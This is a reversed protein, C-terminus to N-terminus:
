SFEDGFGTPTDGNVKTILNQIGVDNLKFELKVLQDKQLNSKRTLEELKLTKEYM